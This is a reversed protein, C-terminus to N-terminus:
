RIPDYGSTPVVTNRSSHKEDSLYAGFRAIDDMETLERGLFDNLLARLLFPSLRLEIWAGLCLILCVIGFGLWCGRGCASFAAGRRGPCDVCHPPGPWMQLRRWCFFCPVTVLCRFGFLGAGANVAGGGFFGDPVGGCLGSLGCCGGAAAAVPNGCLLRRMPVGFGTRASLAADSFLGRFNWPGSEAGLGSLGDPVHDTGTGCGRLDTRCLCCGRRDRSFLFGGAAPQAAPQPRDMTGCSEMEFRM